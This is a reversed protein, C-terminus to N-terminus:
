FGGDSDRLLCNAGSISLGESEGFCKMARDTVHCLPQRRASAPGKLIWVCGDPDENIDEFDRLDDFEFHSLVAEGKLHILDHMGLVWLAGTRDGYVHVIPTVTRGDVSFTRSSFRVGDFRYVEPTFSSFWLFGDATQSISFMGKPVSGDQIRWATHIYQTVHKKPDLAHVPVVGLLLYLLHSGLIATLARASLRFANRSFATRGM